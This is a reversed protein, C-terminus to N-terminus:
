KTGGSNGRILELGYKIPVAYSLRDNGAFFIGSVRGSDDFVPGGSNGPGTANITLQYVDGITSIQSGDASPQIVRSVAGPTVSVGPVMAYQTERNFPDQSDTKVYVKPSIGPYGMAVIDQGPTPQDADAEGALPVPTLEYPVDIRILAVDHQNSVQVVRGANRNKSNAFTVDLIQNEGFFARNSASGGGQLSQAPVWGRIMSALEPTVQELFQVKEGVVIGCPCRLIDPMATMWAAAVHRNTMVFGDKHVVFGTGSHTGGILRGAGARTTLVPELVGKAVVVYMPIAHQQQNIEVMRHEHYVPQKSGAHVLKWSVETYVVSASYKTAIAKQWGEKSPPPVIPAPMSAIAEKMKAQSSALQADHDKKAFLLVGGALVAAVVGAVALWAGVSRKTKTQQEALLREVTEKGIPRSAPQPPQASGAGEKADSLIHADSVTMERTAAPLEIYTTAKPQPPPEPDFRVVLEPGATGIQLRDGHSLAVTGTTVKGNLFLGNRSGMDKLRLVNPQRPDYELTAHQRSVSQSVDTFRVQAALDRGILISQYNATAFTERQHAKEGSTHEIIIHDM